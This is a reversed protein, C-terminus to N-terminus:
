LDFIIDGYVVSGLFIIKGHPQLLEIKIRTEPYDSDSNQVSGTRELAEVRENLETTEELLNLVDEKIDKTDIKKEM